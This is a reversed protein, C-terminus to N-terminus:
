QNITIKNGDGGNVTLTTSSGGQNLTVTAKGAAPMAVGVKTEGTGKVINLSDDVISAAIGSGLSIGRVIGAVSAAASVEAELQRQADDLGNTLLNETSLLNRDLQNVELPNTGDLANRLLSADNFFADQLSKSAEGNLTRVEAPPAVILLNSVGTDNLNLIVPASPSAERSSVLTAEFAKTLVVSTEDTIVEISGVKCDREVSAYGDPCTPLLIVLSRGIEDVTMSFDTGRIGVTATPTKITVNNPQMKGIQGTVFRATGVAVRLGLKGSNAGSDPDYVFRDLEVSSQEGISLETNDLFRVKATGRATQILDLMEVEAVVPAPIVKGSRRIETGAGSPSINGIPDARLLGPCTVGAAVGLLCAAARPIKFSFASM